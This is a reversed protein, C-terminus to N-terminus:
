ATTYYLEAIESYTKEDLRRWEDKLEKDLEPRSIKFFDSELGRLIQRIMDEKKM